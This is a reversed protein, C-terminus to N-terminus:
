DTDGMPSVKTTFQRISNYLEVIFIPLVTPHEEIFKATANESNQQVDYLYLCATSEILAHYCQIYDFHLMAFLFSTDQLVRGFGTRVAKSIDQSHHKLMTSFLDLDDQDFAIKNISVCYSYSSILASLVNNSYTSTEQCLSSRVLIIKELLGKYTQENCVYGLSYAVAQRIENNDSIEFLNTLADVAVQRTESTNNLLNHLTSVVSVVFRTHSENVANSTTDGD